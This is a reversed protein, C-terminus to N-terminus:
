RLGRMRTLPQHLELEERGARDDGCVSAWNRGTQIPSPPRDHARAEDEPAPEAGVPADEVAPMPMTPKASTSNQSSVASMARSPPARRGRRASGRAASCAARRWRARSRGARGRRRRRARARRRRAAHDVAAARHHRDRRERREEGVHDADGEPQRGAVEAAPEVGHQAEEGVEHEGERHDQEEVQQDRGLDALRRDGAGHRRHEEEERHEEHRTKKQLRKRSRGSTSQSSGRAPRQQDAAEAIEPQGPEPVRGPQERHLRVREVDEEGDDEDGRRRDEADDAAEGEVDLGAVVDGGRLGAALPGHYMM